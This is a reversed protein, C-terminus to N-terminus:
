WKAILQTLDCVRTGDPMLVHDFYLPALVHDGPQVEPPLISGDKLKRGPGVALVRYRMQDDQYSQVLLIGGPSLAQPPLPELHVRNGLLKM